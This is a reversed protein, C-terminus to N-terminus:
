RRSRELYQHVIRIMREANRRSGEVIEDMTLPKRAIGHCYNDVSCIAAYSLGLERAIVAEGAMTMGVLDAFKAMMRIEAKTELRPGATQWYVGTPICDIGCARSAKVLKQRLPESLGPTVHQARNKFVTLPVALLIFDDPIVISGPPLNKRLSGTSNVGVVEEVGLGKLASLNAQHNIMHPLIYKRPDRGHRPVFAVRPSILVTAQGFETRVKKEKLNGFADRGALVTGAIVGIPKVSKGKGETHDFIRQKGSQSDRHRHAVRKGSLSVGTL